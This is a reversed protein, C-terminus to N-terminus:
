QKLKLSESFCLWKIEVIASVILRENIISGGCQLTFERGNFKYIAVHWPVENISAQFGGVVYPTGAATEEGCIPTCTEPIPKWVGDDGCITIQKSGWPREYRERCYVHAQTGPKAPDSCHVEVNNLLCTSAVITIGSIYRSSCRPQCDLIPNTWKGQHCLSMTPGELLSNASCNIHITSFQSVIEGFSLKRGQANEIWGNQPVRDITCDGAPAVQNLSFLYIFPKQFFFTLFCGM